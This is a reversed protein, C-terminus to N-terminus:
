RFLILWMLCTLLIVASPYFLALPGVDQEIKYRLLLYRVGFVLIVAITLCVMWVPFFSGLIDVSPARSCGSCPLSVGFTVVAFMVHRTTISKTMRAIQIM